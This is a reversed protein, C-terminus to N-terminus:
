GPKEPTGSLQQRGSGESDTEGALDPEGTPLNVALGEGRGVKELM